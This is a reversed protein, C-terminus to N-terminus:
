LKVVHQVRFIMNDISTGTDPDVSQLTLDALIKNAHGNLYRGVMFTIETVDGNAANLSSGGNAMTMLSIASNVGTDDDINVWSYRAGFTYKPNKMTYSGQVTLGTASADATGGDVEANRLFFEVLGHFGNIKVVGNLNIGLTDAEVGTSENGVWLGGGVSWRLNEAGELDGQSYRLGSMGGENDSDLTFGFGFNLENDANLSDESQGTLKTGGATSTNWVGANVHLRNEMMSLLANLGQSRLGSFTSEAVGRVPFELLSSSGTESRGYLTKQQGGRIEVKMNDNAWIKQQVWADKVLNTSDAADLYIKFKTDPSWLHGQFGFRADLFEFTGVDPQIDGGSFRYEWRVWAGVNISSGGSEFTIGKGASMDVSTDGRLAPVRVTDLGDNGGAFAVPAALALALMSFGKPNRM